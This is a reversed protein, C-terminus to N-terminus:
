TPARKGTSAQVFIVLTSLGVAALFLGRIAEAYSLIAVEKETGSLQAVTSPSGVLKRILDERGPLGASEFGKTLSSILLRTFIGGGIASGFSSAFGRFTALLSIVIPHLNPYTLHLLHVLAYNLTSGTALGNAFAVFM